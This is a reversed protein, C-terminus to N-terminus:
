NNQQQSYFHCVNFQSLIRSNQTDSHQQRERKLVKPKQHQHSGNNPNSLGGEDGNSGGDNCVEKSPSLPAGHDTEEVNKDSDSPEFDAGEIDELTQKM